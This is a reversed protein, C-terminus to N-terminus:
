YNSCQDCEVRIVDDIDCGYADAWADCTAGFPVSACVLEEDTACAWTICEDPKDDPSEAIVGCAEDGRSLYDHDPETDDCALGAVLAATLALAHLAHRM